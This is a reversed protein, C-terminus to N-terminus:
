KKRGKKHDKSRNYTWWLGITIISSQRVQSAGLTECSSPSPTPSPWWWTARPTTTGRPLHPLPDDPAEPQKATARATRQGASLRVAGRVLPGFNPRLHALLGRHRQGDCDEPGTNFHDWWRHWLGLPRHRDPLDPFVDVRDLNGVRVLARLNGRGGAHPRGPGAGPDLEISRDHRDGKLRNHSQIPNLTQIDV